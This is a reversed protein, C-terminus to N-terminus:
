PLKYSKRLAKLKSKEMGFKSLLKFYKNVFKHDHEGHGLAHTLEHLLTLVNRQNRSLIIGVGEQFYSYYRGNYKTGTGTKIKPFTSKLYSPWTKYAIQRLKKIPLDRNLRHGRFYLGEFRYVRKTDLTRQLKKKRSM